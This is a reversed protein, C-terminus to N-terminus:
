YDNPITIITGQAEFIKQWIMLFIKSDSTITYPFLSIYCLEYKSLIHYSVVNSINLNLTNRKKPLISISRAPLPLLSKTCIFVYNAQM